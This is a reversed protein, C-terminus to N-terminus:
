KVKIKPIQSAMNRRQVLKAAVPRPFSRVGSSITAPTTYSSAALVSRRVFSSTMDVVLLSPECIVRYGSDPVQWCKSASPNHRASTTTAAASGHRQPAHLTSAPRMYGPCLRFSLGHLQVGEISREQRCVKTSASVAPVLNYGSSAHQASRRSVWADFSWPVFSRSTV